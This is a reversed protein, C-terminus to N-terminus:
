IITLNTNKSSDLFTVNHQRETNLIASTYKIITEVKFNNKIVQIYFHAINDSTNIKLCQPYRAYHNNSLVLIGLWKRGRWQWRICVVSREKKSLFKILKNELNIIQWQLVYLLSLVCTVTCFLCFLSAANLSSHYNSQWQFNWRGVSGGATGGATGM